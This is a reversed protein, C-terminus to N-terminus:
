YVAGESDSAPELMLVGIRQMREQQQARAARLWEAACAAAGWVAAIFERRRMVENL